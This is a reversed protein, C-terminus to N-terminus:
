SLLNNSVTLNCETQGYFENIGVNLIEKGWNLLEEGLAEGGSGITRLNLKDRSKYLNFSKMM